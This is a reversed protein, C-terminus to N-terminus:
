PVPYHSPRPDPPDGSAFMQWAAAALLLLTCFLGTHLLLRRIQNHRDEPSVPDPTMARGTNTQRRSMRQRPACFVRCPLTLVAHFRGPTAHFIAFVRASSHFCLRRTGTKSQEKM